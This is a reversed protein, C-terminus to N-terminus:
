AAETQAAEEISEQAAKAAAKERAEVNYADEPDIHNPVGAVEIDEPLTTGDALTTGAAIKFIMKKGGHDAIVQRSGMYRLESGAPLDQVGERGTKRSFQFAVSPEKGNKAETPQLGFDAYTEFLDGKTYKRSRGKKAEVVTETSDSTENENENNTVETVNENESMKKRKGKKKGTGPPKGKPGPEDILRIAMKITERHFNVGHGIRIALLARGFLDWADKRDDDSASIDVIAQEVANRAALDKEELLILARELIEKTKREM